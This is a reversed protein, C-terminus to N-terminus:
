GFAGNRAGRLSGRHDSQQSNAAGGWGKTWHRHSQLPQRTASVAEKTYVERGALDLIASRFWQWSHPLAGSDSISGDPPPVCNNPHTEHRDWVIITM